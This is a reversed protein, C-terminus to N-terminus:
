SKPVASSGPAVKGPKSLHTEICRIIEEVTAPKALYKQGGIVNGKARTTEKSVGATLFVIPTDKLVRDARITSAIEGGDVDPMIVDLLIIDPLFDQAVKLGYAGNKEVRVEFRGRLELSLKLMRTFSPEDDILLVRIKDM